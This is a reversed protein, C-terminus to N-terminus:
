YSGSVLMERHGYPPVNRLLALGMDLANQLSAAGEAGACLPAPWHWLAPSEVTGTQGQAQLLAAAEMCVCM